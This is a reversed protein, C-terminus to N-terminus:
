KKDSFNESVNNLMEQCAAGMAGPNAKVFSNKDRKIQERKMGIILELQEIYLKQSEILLEASAILIWSASLLLLIMVGGFDTQFFVMVLFFLSVYIEARKFMQKFVLDWYSRM